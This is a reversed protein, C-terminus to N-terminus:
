KNKVGLNWGLGGMFRFESLSLKYDTASLSQGQLYRVNVFFHFISGVYFNTGASFTILPVTEFANPTNGFIRLGNVFGFGPQMGIFPDLQTNELFHYNMGWLVSHYSTINSNGTLNSLFVHGEGTMSIHENFYYDWNGSFYLATSANSTFVGPTLTGMARFGHRKTFTGQADAIVVFLCLASFILLKKM